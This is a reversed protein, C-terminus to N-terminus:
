DEALPTELPTSYGEKEPDEEDKAERESMTPSPPSVITIPPSPLPPSSLPTEPRHSKKVSISSPSTLAGQEGAKGAVDGDEVAHDAPETEEPITVRPPATQESMSSQGARRRQRRRTREDDASERRRRVRLSEDRLPPEADSGQVGGGAARLSQMLSAARDAVDEGESIAGNETEGAALSSADTSGTGPRTPSLLPGDDTPAGPEPVSDVNPIEQGSAVRRQHRDNLRARRRRDRTDRAAPAAARLKELLTDMAGTSAPSPPGGAEATAAALAAGAQQKRRM